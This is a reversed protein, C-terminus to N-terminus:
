EGLPLFPIGRSRFHTWFCSNRLSLGLLRFIILAWARIRRAIQLLLFSRVTDRGIEAFTKDEIRLCDRDIEVAWMILLTFLLVLAYFSILSLASITAWGKRFLWGFFDSLWTEPHCRGDGTYTIQEISNETMAGCRVCACIFRM